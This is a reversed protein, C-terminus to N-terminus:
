MNSQKALMINYMLRTCGFTKNILVEQEENPYLRFQYTIIQKM